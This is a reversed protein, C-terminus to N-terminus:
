AFYSMLPVQLHQIGDQSAYCSHHLAVSRCLSLSDIVVLVLASGPHSAALLLLMAHTLPRERRKLLHAPRVLTDCLGDLQGIIQEQTQHNALAIQM